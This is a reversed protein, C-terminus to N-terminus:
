FNLAASVLWGTVGAFDINLKIPERIGKVRLGPLAMRVTRGGNNLQWMEEQGYEIAMM